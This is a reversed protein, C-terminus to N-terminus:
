PGFNQFKWRFLVKTSLTRYSGAWLGFNSSPWSLVGKNSSPSSPGKFSEDRNSSTESRDVSKRNEGSESKSSRVKASDDRDTGSRGSRFLFHVFITYQINMTYLFSPFSFLFSQKSIKKTRWRGRTGRRRRSVGNKRIIRKPDVVKNVPIVPLEKCM